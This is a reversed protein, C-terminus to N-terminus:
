FQWNNWLLHLWSITFTTCLKIALHKYIFLYEKIWCIGVSFSSFALCEETHHTLLSFSTEARHLECGEIHPQHFPASLCYLLSCSDLTFKSLSLPQSSFVLLHCYRSHHHSHSLYPTTLVRWPSPLKVLSVQITVYVSCLSEPLGKFANSSTLLKLEWM